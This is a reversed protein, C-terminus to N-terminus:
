TFYKNLMIVLETKDIPKTIYDNSGASLAKERDGNLGFASQTIIIVNTNLKRIEKTAEYGNMDPMQVDILILDIDTNDKFKEIAERGTKAEIIEKGFENVSKLILKRSIIDDDAILMKLKTNIQPVKEKERKQIRNIQSKKGKNKTDLPLSFYFTSGIGEQSELWIKGGLLQVFAKSIALGLGAGQRAQINAIDVQIFREFVASQQEMPIGIGTDKVFFEVAENKVTYGFDITGKNTYKIANKVLNTLIAYLKEHDTVLYLDAFLKSNYSLQISKEEADLKLLDFVYDVKENINVEELNVEMMGSEIKSIDIIESILNLMRAGSIQILKIYEQQEENSLGPESLLSSFGLIGNMPTRFEHSMNALFASKLRDSEEAKEKANILEFELKKRDTIDVFFMAIGNETPYMSYLFWKDFPPYYEEGQIFVKKNIVKEFNLQFLTGVVYPFVEWISKGIIETPNKGIYEGAKSNVYTYHGTKDLSIFADNMNELINNVFSREKNLNKKAIKNKYIDRITGIRRVPKGNIDFTKKKM